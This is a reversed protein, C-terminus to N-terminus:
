LLVGQCEQGAQREQGVSLVDGDSVELFIGARPSYVKESEVSAILGDDHWIIGTLADCVGKLLNDNLDPRTVKYYKTGLMFGQMKAKTWSKPPSFCFRAKLHVIEQFPAFGPPLQEMAQMKLYNKWDIQEKPQYKRIFNGIRAFRVSQVAKPEGQFNLSIKM